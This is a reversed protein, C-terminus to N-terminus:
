SRFRSSLFWGLGLAVAITTLPNKQVLKAFDDSMGSLKENKLYEGGSHVTSGIARTADGMMGRQPGNENISDGIEELGKGARSTLNEAHHGVGAVADSALQGVGAAAHSAMSGVSNVADRGRGAAISFESDEQDPKTATDPKSTLIAM